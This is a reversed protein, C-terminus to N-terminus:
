MLGNELEAWIFSTLRDHVELLYFDFTEDDDEKALCEPVKRKLQFGMWVSISPGPCSYEPTVCYKDEIMMNAIWYSLNYAPSGFDAGHHTTGYKESTYAVKFEVNPVTFKIPM